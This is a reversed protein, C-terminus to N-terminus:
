LTAANLRARSWNIAPKAGGITRHLAVFIDVKRDIEVNVNTTGRRINTPTPHRSAPRDVLAAATLTGAVASPCGGAVEELIV